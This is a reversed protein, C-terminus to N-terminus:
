VGKKKLFIDLSFSDDNLLVNGLSMNFDVEFLDLFEDKKIYDKLDIDGSIIESIFEDVEDRTYSDVNPICVSEGDVPVIICSCGIVPVNFCKVSELVGESTRVSCAGDYYEIVTGHIISPQKDLRDDVVSQFTDLLGM